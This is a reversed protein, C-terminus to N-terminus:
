CSIVKYTKKQEAFYIGDDVATHVADKPTGENGEVEQGFTHRHLYKPKWHREKSLYGQRPFSVVQHVQDDPRNKKSGSRHMPEFWGMEAPTRM